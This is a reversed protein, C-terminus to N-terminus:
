RLRRAVIEAVDLIEVDDRKANNAADRLMIPCYPCAVAVTTANTEMLEGFRLQNVRKQGQERKDDAVFLQAGGAGCCRTNQGHHAAETLTIGAAELIERPARTIGRGRALYCPDHYTVTSPSPEPTAGVQETPGGSEKHDAAPALRLALKPLLDALLETHHLVEIGLSAYAAIQRYDKDLMTTCHPCCTVIKKVRASEFSEVLKGSLELFLYENGARRAPEGCCTERPLVGWSVGAADLIQRM